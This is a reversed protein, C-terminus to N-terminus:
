RSPDQDRGRSFRELVGSIRNRLLYGAVFLVTAVGFVTGALIWRKGAAADGMVSSGLIGPTRGLMSIACFALYGMRSLGAVYCLIDKPIGPILFLLFMVVKSRHSDALGRIREIQAEKFFLRVFPVGLFRALFFSVTSGLAIGAVSLLAGNWIGFLYGAAIQPVEGPIIFIIVQLAQLGVFMLPAAPGFSSVWSRLHEPSRFITWLQKRFVVSLAVLGGFVAVLVVVSVVNKKTRM